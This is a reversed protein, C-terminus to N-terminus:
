LAHTSGRSASSHCSSPQFLMDSSVRNPIGPAKACPVKSVQVGPYRINMAAICLPVLRRYSVNPLPPASVTSRVSEGRSYERVQYRCFGGSGFATQDCRFLLL